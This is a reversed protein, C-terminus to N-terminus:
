VKEQMAEIGVFKGQVVVVRFCTWKLTVAEVAYM